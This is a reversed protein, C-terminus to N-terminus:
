VDMFKRTLKVAEPITVVSLTAQLVGAKRYDSGLAKFVAPSLDAIRPNGNKDNAYPGRDTVMARVKKGNAVIEVVTGFPLTPHAITMETARFITGSATLEGRLTYCSIEGQETFPKGAYLHLPMDDKRTDFAYQQVGPLKITGDARGDAHDWGELTKYLLAFRAANRAFRNWNRHYAPQFNTLSNIKKQWDVYEKKTFVDRHTKLYLLLDATETSKPSQGTRRAVVSAMDRLTKYAQNAAEPSSFYFKM